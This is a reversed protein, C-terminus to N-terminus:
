AARGLREAPRARALANVAVAYGLVDLRQRRRILPVLAVDGDETPHGLCPAGGEAYLQHGDVSGVRVAREVRPKRARRGESRGREDAASSSRTPKSSTTTVPLCEVTLMRSETM